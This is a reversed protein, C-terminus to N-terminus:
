KLIWKYGELYSFKSESKCRGGSYSLYFPGFLSYFASFTLIDNKVEEIVNFQIAENEEKAICALSKQPDNLNKILAFNDEVEFRPVPFIAGTFGFGQLEYIYRMLRNNAKSACM